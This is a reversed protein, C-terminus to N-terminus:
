QKSANPFIERMIKESDKNAVLETMHAFFETEASGADKWYSSGHGGGLPYSGFFFGTSEMMDSLASYAKPNEKALQKYKQQFKSINTSSKEYIKSTEKDWIAKEAKKRPKPGLDEYMPLDGNIFTWLDRNITSKLNYEPIGSAHYILEDVERKKRLITKKVKRGTPM